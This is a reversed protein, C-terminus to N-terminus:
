AYMHRYISGLRGETLGGSLCVKEGTVRYTQITSNCSDMLLCTYVCHHIVFCLWVWM